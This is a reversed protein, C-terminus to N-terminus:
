NEQKNLGIFKLTSNPCMILKKIFALMVQKLKLTHTALTIDLEKKLEGNVTFNIGKENSM